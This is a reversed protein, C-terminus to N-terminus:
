SKLKAIKPLGDLCERVHMIEYKCHFTNVLGKKGIRGKGFRPIM